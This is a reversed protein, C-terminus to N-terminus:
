WGLKQGMRIIFFVLQSMKGQEMSSHMTRQKELVNELNRQSISKLTLDHMVSACSLTVSFVLLLFAGNGLIEHALERDDAGLARSALPAGGGSVFASFASFLTIIPICLGLGALADRGVVAMNGIYIRDVVNYLLNVIQALISPITM